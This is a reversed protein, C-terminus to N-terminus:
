MQSKSHVPNAQGVRLIHALSVCAVSGDHNPTQRRSARLSNKCLDKWVLSGVSPEKQQEAVARITEIFGPLAQFIVTVQGAITKLTKEISFAEIHETM